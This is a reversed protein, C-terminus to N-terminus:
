SFVVGVFHTFEIPCNAALMELFEAGTLARGYEDEIIAEAPRAKCVERVMDPDQAWSFSAAGQVGTPRVTEPEAFGLEVAVPGTMGPTRKPEKGCKPCHDHMGGNGYHLRAEGDACLTVHCDWCYWGASSRKGIHVMPSDRDLDISEGSPLKAEVKWYFNTGM